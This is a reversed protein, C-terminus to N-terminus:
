VKIKISIWDGCMFCQIFLTYEYEFHAKLPSIEDNSFIYNPYGCSACEVMSLYKNIKKEKEEEM